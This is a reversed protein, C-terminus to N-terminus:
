SAICCYCLSIGLITAILLASLALFATQPIAQALISKVSRGSQFSERLYPSKMVLVKEGFDILTTYNYLEQLEEADQHVSIPSIDRLYRM